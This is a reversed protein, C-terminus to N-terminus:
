LSAGPESAAPHGDEATAPPNEDTTSPEDELEAVEELSFWESKAPGQLSVAVLLVILLGVFIAFQGFQAVGPAAIVLGVLMAVLGVGSVVGGGILTARRAPTPQQQARQLLLLGGAAVSVSMPLASISLAFVQASTIEPLGYIVLVVSLVVGVGAVIALPLTRQQV